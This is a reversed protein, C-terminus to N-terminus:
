EGGGGEEDVHLALEDRGDGGERADGRRGGAGLVLGARRLPLGRAHVGVVRAVADGAPGGEVEGRRRAVDEIRRGEVHAAVGAVGVAGAHRLARGAGELGAAGLGPVRHDLGRDVVVREGDVHAVLPERAVAVALDAGGGADQGLPGQGRVKRVEGDGQAVGDGLNRAQDAVETGPGGGLAVEHAVALAAVAAHLVLQARGGAVGGVRGGEVDRAVVVVVGVGGDERLARGDAVDGRVGLDREPGRDQVVDGGNVM